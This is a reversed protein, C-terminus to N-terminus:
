RRDRQVVSGRDSVRIPARKKRQRDHEAHPKNNELFARFRLKIQGRPFDESFQVLGDLRDPPLPKFSMTVIVTKM